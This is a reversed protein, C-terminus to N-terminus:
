RTVDSLFRRAARRGVLAASSRFVQGADIGAVMYARRTAPLIETPFAARIYRRVTAELRADRTLEARVTTRAAELASELAMGFLVGGITM